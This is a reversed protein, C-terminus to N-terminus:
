GEVLSSIALIYLACCQGMTVELNTCTGKFAADTCIYLHTTKAAAKPPQDRRTTLFKTSTTSPLVFQAIPVAITIAALALLISTISKMNIAPHTSSPPFVICLTELIGQTIGQDSACLEVNRTALRTLPNM